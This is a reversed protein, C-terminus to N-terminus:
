RAGMSRLIANMYGFSEAAITCAEEKTQSPGIVERCVPGDYHARVMARFYGILDIDGRGCAQM